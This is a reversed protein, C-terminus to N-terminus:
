SFTPRPYAWTCCLLVASLFSFPFGEASITTFKPKQDNVQCFLSWFFFLLFPLTSVFTEALLKLHFLLFSIPISIKCPRTLVLPNAPFIKSTPTSLTVRGAYPMNSTWRPFAQLMCHLPPGLETHILPFGLLNTQILSITSQTPRMV